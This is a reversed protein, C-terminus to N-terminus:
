PASFRAPHTLVYFNGFPSALTRACVCANSVLGETIHAGKWVYCVEM